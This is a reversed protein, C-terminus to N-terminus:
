FKSQFTLNLVRNSIIKKIEDRLIAVFENDNLHNSNAYFVDIAKAIEICYINDPLSCYLEKLRICFDNRDM